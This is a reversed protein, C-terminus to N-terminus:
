ERALTPLFLQHTEGFLAFLSFHDLLTTVEQALPADMSDLRTWGQAAMWWMCLTGSIAATPGLADYGITLTFPVSPQALQESDSYVASVTFARGIGIQGAPPAPTEVHSHTLRVTDTFTGPGLLYGTQDIESFLLGGGIPIIATTRAPLPLTTPPIDTTMQWVQSGGAFTLTKGDPTLRPWMRYEGQGEVLRETQWAGERWESMDLHSSVVVPGLDPDSITIPRSYVLRTAQADSAFSDLNVDTIPLVPTPTVKQPAGWVGGTRRMVYLDQSTMITGENRLLWYIISRL